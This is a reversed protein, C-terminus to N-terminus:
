NNVNKFPLELCRTLMVAAKARTMRTEPISNFIRRADSDSDSMQLLKMVNATLLIVEEDTIPLAKGQRSVDQGNLINLAQAIDIERAFNDQTNGTANGTDAYLGFTRVLWATYENVNVIKDPDFKDDSVGSFVYSSALQRIENAAVNWQIDTYKVRTSQIARNIADLKVPRGEDRLQFLTPAIYGGEDYENRAYIIISQFDTAKPNTQTFKIADEVQKQLEALTPYQIWSNRLDEINAYWPCGCYYRPRNDWGATVTPIAVGDCRNWLAWRDRETEANSTYALDNNGAVVYSSIGSARCAAVVRNIDDTSTKFTGIIVFPDPVGQSACEAFLANVCTEYSGEADHIYFVPRGSNTKVYADSKFDIAVMDTILKKQAPSTGNGVAGRFNGDFIHCWQFANRQLSKVWLNRHLSGTADNQDGYWVTAWYDIGAAKAYRIEREVTLIDTHRALVRNDPLIKGFWPVRFHYDTVAAASPNSVPIGSLIREVELGAAWKEGVWADWRIAGVKVFSPTSSAPIDKPKHNNCSTLGLFVSLVFILYKQVTKM